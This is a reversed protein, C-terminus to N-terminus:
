FGLQALDLEVDARAPTLPADLRRRERDLGTWFLHIADLAERGADLFVDPDFDPDDFSKRLEEWVAAGHGAETVFHFKFFGLPLPALGQPRRVRADFLELGAILQKWFNKAEREPGQAIGFAAWSEIAFSAGAGVLGDRSGYTRDLGDLFEHTEERGLDWRGLRRPDLGLARGTERLWELHANRNSFTRGEAEGTRPELGVGCENVLIARACREGEETGANVLRKAQVVLFHNSFVSFQEILDKVQAEDAEGRSFWATYPNAQVVPHGLIELELRRRFDDFRPMDNELFPNADFSLM